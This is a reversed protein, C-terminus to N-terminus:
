KKQCAAVTRLPLGWVYIFGEASSHDFQDGEAYTALGQNYLSYPSSRGVVTHSGKFLKVRVVGEVYTQTNNIFADLAEKLPSFWLGDYTLEAYRQEVIRKFNNADKTLVMKELERHANILVVAAPAEYIERSKIGVLRDEVQDIRGVGNRGAIKNVEQILDVANMKKGNLTVPVGKKFGIEIYEPKNPAKVPDATWEFADEPPEVNADELIGCECSRGWLNEDTSYPCAKKVKISIGHEKAYEIEDERSMVWERMPAIIKLKPDIANISVDFRVQDNGKATCGHAIYKAGEKQAVEVLLKAILPRAVSTAMPYTGMYMANAKLCPFVYDEAFAKKADIAFAEAAGNKRAREINEDMDGPQGVDVSVAIVDLNYKDQIWKIAVSTDLGGSYALVVKEKKAKAPAKDKKQTTPKKAPM